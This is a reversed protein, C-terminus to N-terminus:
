SVFWGTFVRRPGGSTLPLVRHEYTPLVTFVVATGATDHRHRFLTDREGVRRLEFEGGSYPSSNLAITIALRRDADGMDDHWALEDQAVPHTEVVRGEVSAIPGCGTVEELWRFLPPRRLLLSIAGGAVAPKEIQRHGLHEVWDSQFAARDCVRDLKAVLASDLAGPCVIARSAAFEAVAPAADVIEMGSAGIQFYPSVAM